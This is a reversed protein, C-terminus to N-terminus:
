LKGEMIMTSPQVMDFPLYAEITASPGFGIGALEEKQAKTLPEGDSSEYDVQDGAIFEQSIYHKKETDFRQIVFGITIKDVTM